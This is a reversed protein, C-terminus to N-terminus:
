TPVAENTCTLTGEQPFDSGTGVFDNGDCVYGSGAETKLTIPGTFTNGPGLDLNTPVDGTNGIDLVGGTWANNKFEVGDSSRINVECTSLVNGSIVPDTEISYGGVELFCGSGAFRSNLLQLELTTTILAQGGNPTLDGSQNGDANTFTGDNDLDLARFVVGASPDKVDVMEEGQYGFSLHEALVSQSGEIQLGDEGTATTHAIRNNTITINRPMVGDGAPLESENEMVKIIHNDPAGMLDSGTLTWNDVDDELRFTETNSSNDQRIKLNRLLFDHQSTTRGDFRQLWQNTTSFTIGAVTTPQGSSGSAMSLGSATVAECDYPKVIVGSPVTLTGYSGARLLVETGSSAGSLVSTYTSTTAQTGSTDRVENGPGTSGAGYAGPATVTGCTGSPTTTTTPAVTTTTAAPAYTLELEPVHSQIDTQFRLVTSKNSSVVIGTRGNEPLDGLNFTLNIEVWSGKTVAGTRTGLTNGVGGWNNWTIQCGDQSSVNRDSATLVLGSDNLTDIVWIRLKASAINTTSPNPTVTTFQFQTKRDTSATDVVPANTGCHGTNPQGQHVWGVDDSQVTADAAMAPVVVGLTGLAILLAIVLARKNPTMKM